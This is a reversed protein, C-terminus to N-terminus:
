RKHKTCIQYSLGSHLGGKGVSEEEELDHDELTSRGYLREDTMTIRLVPRFDEKMDQPREM